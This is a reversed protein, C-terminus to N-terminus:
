GLAALAACIMFPGFPIRAHRGRGDLLLIVGWLGGSIFTLLLAHCWVDVGAWATLAGLSPALKVDGWGMGQGRGATALLLYFGGLALAGVGGRVITSVETQLMSSVVLGSLCGLAVTLTLTNPLRHERVDIVVLAVWVPSLLTVCSALVPDWDALGMAARITLVVTLIAPLTQSRPLRRDAPRPFCRNLM